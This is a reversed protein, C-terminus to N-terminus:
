TLFGVLNKCSTCHGKKPANYEWSDNSGRLDVDRYFTASAAEVQALQHGVLLCFLVLLATRYMICVQTTEPMPYMPTQCRTSSDKGSIFILRTIAKVSDLTGFYRVVTVHNVMCSSKKKGHTQANGSRKPTRDDNLDTGDDNRLRM